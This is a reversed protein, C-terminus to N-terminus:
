VHSLMELYTNAVNHKMYWNISIQTINIKQSNYIIISHISMNLNKYLHMNEINNTHIYSFQKIIHYCEASSNSSVRSQKRFPNVSINANGFSIFLPELKEMDNSLKNDGSKKYNVMITSLFHYVMHNQNINGQHIIVKLM